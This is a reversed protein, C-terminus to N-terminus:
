EGTRMRQVLEIGRKKVQRYWKSDVMEDAARHFDGEKLAALFRKFQKLRNGLNFAMNVLVEQRADNLLVFAECGYLQLTRRIATDLDNQFLTDCQEKTIPDGLHWRKNEERTLLHGIGVTPLGETDLYVNLKIGEHRTLDDKLRQLRM